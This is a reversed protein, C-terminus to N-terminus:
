FPVNSNPTVLGTWYGVMLLLFAFLSLSVRITLAKVTRNTESNDKLLFVLASAMSGVIVLLLAIVILKILM